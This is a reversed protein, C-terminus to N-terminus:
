VKGLLPGARHQSLHLKFATRGVKTPSMYICKSSNNQDNMLLKVIALEFLVTKGSGTPASIVMNESTEMIKHFSESQVANFVGFSFIGRYIDAIKRLVFIWYQRFSTRLRSTPVARINARAEPPSPHVNQDFQNIGLDEANELPFDSIPDSAFERASTEQYNM